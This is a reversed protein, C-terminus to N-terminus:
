QIYPKDIYRNYNLVANKAIWNYAGEDSNWKPIYAGTRVNQCNKDKKGKKIYHQEAKLLRYPNNSHLLVEVKFHSGPHSTIYGFFKWYLSKKSHQGASGKAYQNLSKQIQRLSGYLDKGKVIVYARGYMLKYVVNGYNQLQIQALNDIKYKLVPRSM